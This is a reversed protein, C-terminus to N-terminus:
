SRKLYRIHRYVLYFGVLHFAIEAVAFAYVNLKTVLLYSVVIGVVSGVAVTRAILAYAGLAALAQIMMLSLSGTLITPAFLTLATAAKSFNSQPGISAIGSVVLAIVTLAIACRFTTQQARFIDGFSQEQSRALKQVLAPFDVRLVAAVIMALAVVIQKVYAFIATAEAGLYVSSLVLQVRLYGQPPVLQLLLALGDKFSRALGARTVRRLGPQWGYHRLAAWQAGVTLLYGISFAGGLISGAAGLSERPALVLGVASAAYAISGTMGSIGSRKLGDLLGVANGAWVLWGPLAFLLYCRSFSDSAIGVAYAAAGIGILVAMLLRFVVTESFIRWIEDRAGQEDSLRAMDRALITSSGADVLITGLIAFSYHTGFAALLEFEGNSVLLTQVVFISGQGLGLGAILLGINVVRPSRGLASRSWRVLHSRELMPALNETLDRSVSPHAVRRDM